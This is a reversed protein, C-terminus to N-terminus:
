ERVTCYMAVTVPVCVCVRGTLTCGVCVRTISPLRKECRHTTVNPSCACAHLPVRWDCAVCVYLFHNENVQPACVIHYVQVESYMHAQHWPTHNRTIQSLCECVCVCANPTSFWSTQWGGRWVCVYLCVSARVKKMDDEEGNSRLQKQRM